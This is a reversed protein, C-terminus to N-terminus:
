KSSTQCYAFELICRWGDSVEGDSEHRCGQFNPHVMYAVAHLPSDYSDGRTVCWSRIEEYRDVDAKLEELTEIIRDM